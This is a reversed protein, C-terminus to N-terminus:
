DEGLIWNEVYEDTVLELGMFVCEVEELAEAKEGHVTCADRTLAEGTGRYGSGHCNDAVPCSCGELRAKLSGPPLIEINTKTPTESYQRM